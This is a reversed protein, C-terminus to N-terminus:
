QRQASRWLRYGNSPHKRLPSKGCPLRGANGSLTQHNSQAVQLFRFGINDFSLRTLSILIVSATSDTGLKPPASASHVLPDTDGRRPNRSFPGSTSREVSM